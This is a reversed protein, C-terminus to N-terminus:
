RLEVACHTFQMDDCLSGFCSAGVAYRGFFDDHNPNEDSFRIGPKCDTPVNMNQVEVCLLSVSDCNDGRCSLGAILHNPPCDEHGQGEESFFDTCVSRGLQANPLAQCQIFIDDCNDGICTVRSIFRGADCMGPPTEDSIPGLSEAIAQFGFAVEAFPVALLVAITCKRM